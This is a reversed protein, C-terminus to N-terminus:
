QGAGGSGSGGGTMMRAKAEAFMKEQMAAIEESNLDTQPKLSRKERDKQSKTHDDYVEQVEAVFSEFGLQKLAEIVHDGAITKKAEKECVENAESSLLHIFEVCCDALVDRTEKACQLDPPMMEQILKTVTAPAM